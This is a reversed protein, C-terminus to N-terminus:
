FFSPQAKATDSESRERRESDNKQGTEVVVWCIKQRSKM